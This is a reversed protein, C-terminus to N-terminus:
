NKPIGAADQSPPLVRGEHPTMGIDRFTQVVPVDSSRRDTLMSQRGKLHVDFFALTYRNLTNYFAVPNRFVWYRSAHPELAADSLSSHMSGNILIGASGERAALRETERMSRANLRALYRDDPNSSMM